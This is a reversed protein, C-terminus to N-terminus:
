PLLSTDVAFKTASLALNISFLVTAKPDYPNPGQVVKLSEKGTFSQGDKSVTLTYDFYGSNGDWQGETNETGEGNSNPDQFSYFPHTLGYTNHGVKVWTGYCVYGTLIPSLDQDFELGDGTFGSIVRDFLAGTSDKETISWLGIIPEHNGSPMVRLAGHQPSTTGAEAQEAGGLEITPPLGCAAYAQHSRVALALMAIIAIVATRKRPRARSNIKRASM